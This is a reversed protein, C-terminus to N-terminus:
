FMWVHVKVGITGMRSGAHSAVTAKSYERSTTTTTPTTPRALLLRWAEMMMSRLTIRPNDVFSQKVCIPSVM